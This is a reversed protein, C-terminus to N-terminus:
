AARETIFEAIAAAPILRRRGVKVSRLRGAQVEGYVSSRGIGLMTGAENVSLLRDPAAPAAAVELRVSEALAEVLEHIASEVRPTM